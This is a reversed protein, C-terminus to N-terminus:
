RAWKRSRGDRLTRASRTPEGPAPSALERAEARTAVARIGRRYGAAVRCGPVPSDQVAADHAGGSWWAQAREGADGQRPESASQTTLRPVGRRSARGSRPPHASRIHRRLQHITSKSAADSPTDAMPIFSEEVELPCRHTPEGRCPDHTAPAPQAPGSTADFKISRRSRPPMPPPIPWQFSPNKLKSRADTRRSAAATPSSTVARAREPAIGPRGRSRFLLPLWSGGSVGDVSRFAALQGM